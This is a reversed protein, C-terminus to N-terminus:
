GGTTQHGHLGAGAGMVPSALQDCQAKICADDGGVQRGRVPQLAFPFFLSALSEATIQSAAERGCICKTGMLVTSCCLM